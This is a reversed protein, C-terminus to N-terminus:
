AVGVAIMFYPAVAAYRGVHEIHGIGASHLKGLIHEGFDHLHERIGNNMDATVFTGGSCPLAIGLTLSKVALQAHGAVTLELGVEDLLEVFMDLSGAACEREPVLRNRSGAGVGIHDLAGVGKDVAPGHARGVGSGFLASSQAQAADIGGPSRIVDVAPLIGVIRGSGTAVAACEVM